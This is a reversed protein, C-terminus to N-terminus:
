LGGLVWVGRWVVHALFDTVAYGADGRVVVDTGAPLAPL